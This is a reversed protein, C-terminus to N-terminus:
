VAHQLRKIIFQQEIDAIVKPWKLYVKLEPIQKYGRYLKQSIKTSVEDDHIASVHMYASLTEGYFYFTARTGPGDNTFIGTLHTKGHHDIKRGVWVLTLKM